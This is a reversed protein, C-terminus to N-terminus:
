KSADTDFAAALVYGSRNKYKVYLYSQNGVTSSYGTWQVAAGRPITIMNHINNSGAQSRLNAYDRAICYVVKQDSTYKSKTFYASMVYGTKGNYRVKSFESDYVESIFVVSEGKTIKTIEAASTSPNERLTVYDDCLSCYMIQSGNYVPDTEVPAETVKETTEEETPETEPEKYDGIYITVKDGEYVSKGAGPNQELVKNGEELEETEKNKMEYDLNNDELLKVAETRTKGALDPVNVAKRTEKQESAVTVAESPQEDNKNGGNLIFFLVIGAIIVAAAAISVAVIVPAKSQKEAPEPQPKSNQQPESFDTNVPSVPEPPIFGGNASMTRNNDVVGAADSSNLANETLDILESMTRCRDSKYVSLGYMLVSELAPSIEAGLASPKKLRDDHTRDLGNQPTVGTICKYITACLGYIDTWPGQDGNARYQEEPAYGQKLMVSMESSQSTFYRASGFDTLTLAGNAGYIINDPSIDRHIVSEGHIERLSEMVPLMLRFLEDGSFKGHAKTYQLLNEGELYDMIIYATNYEEFYTKINVVGNSGSFKAISQAEHLFREKGKEFDEKQAPTSTYVDNSQANNRNVCGLPYYEKIAVRMKLRADRGVYTIGFGGEGISNGIIYQGNLVTGPVLHHAIRDPVNQKHCHPCVRRPMAEKMCNFCYM